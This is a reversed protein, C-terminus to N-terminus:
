RPSPAASSESRTAATSPLISPTTAAPSRRRSAPWSKSRIRSASPSSGRFSSRWCCRSAAASSCRTRSKASRPSSATSRVSSSRRASRRRRRVAAARRDHRVQQRRHGGDVAADDQRDQLDSRVGTMQQMGFSPANTSRIISPSAAVASCARRREDVAPHPQRLHRRDAYANVLYGVRVKNQGTGIPAVAAHYLKGGLSMVGTSIPLSADDVINKVLPTEKYLDEYTPVTVAPQDTRAVVRGQDDLLIFLDSGFAQRRQEIQDAISTLDLTPAAPPVQPAAAPAAATAPM